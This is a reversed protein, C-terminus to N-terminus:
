SALRHLDPLLDEVVLILFDEFHFVTFQDPDAARDRDAAGGSELFVERDRLLCTGRLGFQFLRDGVANDCGRSPCLVEGEAHFCFEAKSCGVLM